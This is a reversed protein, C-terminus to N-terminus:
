RELKGGVMSARGGKGLRYQHSRPRLEQGDERLDISEGPILQGLRQDEFVM